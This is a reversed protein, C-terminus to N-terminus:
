KSTTSYYVGSHIDFLDRALDQALTTVNGHPDGLNDNWYQVVEQKFMVYTFPNNTWEPHVVITEDYLPNGDFAKRFLAAKGSNINSPFVTIKLNVGCYEKEAPLLLSLANAKDSGNVFLKIEKCDESATIRIDPDQGFMAELKHLYTVWPASIKMDEKEM